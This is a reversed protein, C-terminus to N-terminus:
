RVYMNELCVLRLIDFDSLQWPGPPPRRFELPWQQQQRQLPARPRGPRLPQAALLLALSQSPRGGRFPRDARFSQFPGPPVRGHCTFITLSM